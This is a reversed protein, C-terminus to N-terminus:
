SFQGYLPLSQSFWMANSAPSQKCLPKSPPVFGCMPPVPEVRTEYQKDCTHSGAVVEYLASYIYIYVYTRIYIYIYIHINLSLSLSIQIYDIYTDCIYM